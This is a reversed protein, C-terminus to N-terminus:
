QLNLTMKRISNLKGNLFEVDFSDMYGVTPVKITADLKVTFAVMSGSNTFFLDTIIGSYEQGMYTGTLKQNNM